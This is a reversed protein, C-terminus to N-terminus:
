SFGLAPQIDTRSLDNGVYLLSANKSKALAYAPCDGLNLAAPHIGKGYQRYAEIALLACTSDFAEVTVGLSDLLSHLKTVGEPGRRTLLVVGTEFVTAASTDIVIM